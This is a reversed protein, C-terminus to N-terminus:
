RFRSKELQVPPCEIAFGSSGSALSAASTDRLSKRLPVPATIEAPITAPASTKSAELVGAPAFITPGPFIGIVKRILPPVLDRLRSGLTVRSSARRLSNSKVPALLTHSREVQPAHVTM